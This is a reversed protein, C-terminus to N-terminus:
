DDHTILRQTHKTVQGDYHAAATVGRMGFRCNIGKYGTM